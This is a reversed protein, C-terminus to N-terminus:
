QKLLKEKLRADELLKMQDNIAKKTEENLKKKHEAERSERDIKKQLEQQWIDLHQKNLSQEYTNQLQKEEMQRKRIQHCEMNLHHGQNKRLEDCQNRFQKLRQQEVFKNRRAIRKARLQKAREELRSRRQQPTEIKNDIEKKYAIEDMALLKKLKEKRIKLSLEKMKSKAAEERADQKSKM